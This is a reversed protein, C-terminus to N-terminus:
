KNIYLVLEDMSNFYIDDGGEISVGVLEKEEGNDDTISGELFELIVEKYIPNVIRQNNIISVTNGTCIQKKYKKVDNDIIETFGLDKARKDFEEGFSM